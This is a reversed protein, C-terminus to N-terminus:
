LMSLPDIDVLIKVGSPVFKKDAILQQCFKNLIEANKNKILLHFRFQNRLKSIPSPAPGLISIGKYEPIINKLKEARAKLSRSTQEAKSLQSSSWRISALRVFPPYLLNKRHRLEKECFSSFDNNISHTISPHKPNYTQIFVAGRKKHRGARGSMQTILHYAKESSRFNPLNFGIDALVLGVLTLNPFDLGKAIMQTGILIDIESKEMKHILEELTSRSYIEDRDARAIHATLFLKKLDSEIQETGLGISTINTSKCKKCENQLKEDYNCYHCTLYSKGHLTLSISCNLCEYTYGCSSCILSSAIGRKNLFLASQEKKNFTEELQKYLEPSLWFPLDVKVDLEKANTKEKLDIVKIKPLELQQARNKMKHLHYKKTIQNQWTELSPTASGLVIPINYKKALVIAADRAHYKLQEEQKFSSEHEEDIIILGLNKIPCFLASRTGILINKEGNIISWWQNTKERPTLHSHIVAIEDSFHSSFRHILQPTLSIEPVLVLGKKNNSLSEKLLKIYVETKGSGTVGHLLHVNFNKDKNIAEYCQMQEETFQPLEKKQVQPTISPLKSKRSQTAKKLPPFCLQFVQGIPHLYYESVWEVWSVFKENLQPREENQEIINKIKYKTDKIEEEIKTVVADVKRKGLPVIISSGVKVNQSDDSKYTLTNAIPANVAACIFQTKM